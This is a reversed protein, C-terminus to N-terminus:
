IYILPYLLGMTLTLYSKKKIFQKILKMIKDLYENIAENNKIDDFCYNTTKDLVLEIKSIDVEENKKGFSFENKFYLPIEDKKIKSSKTKDINSTGTSTNIDTTNYTKGKFTKTTTKENISGTISKSNLLPTIKKQKLISNNKISDSNSKEGKKCSKCCNCCELKLLNIFIMVISILLKFTM